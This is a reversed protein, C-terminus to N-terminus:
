SQAPAAAPRPPSIHLRLGLHDIVFRRDRFMDIGLIVAPQGATFGLVGFVPLDAVRVTPKAIQVGGIALTELPLKVSAVAHQTAGKIQSGAVLRPDGDAFGLARAAAGNIITGRAGTDLLASLEVGNLRITLRPARQDDLTFPVTTAMGEILAPEVQDAMRWSGGPMDVEIVFHSIIDAGLVGDTGLDAAPSPPLLLVTDPKFTRGAVHLRDVKATEIPTAGGAGNLPRAAATGKLRPMEARLRPLIATMSAATDLLFRKPATDDFGVLVVPHGSPLVELKHQLAVAAGTSTESAFAYSQAIALASFVGLAAIGYRRAASTM